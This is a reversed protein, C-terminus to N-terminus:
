VPATPRVVAGVNVRVVHPSISAAGVMYSWPLGLIPAFVATLTRDAEATGGTLGGTKSQRVLFTVQM